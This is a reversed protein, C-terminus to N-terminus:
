CTVYWALVGGGPIEGGPLQRRVQDILASFGIARPAKPVAKLIAQRVATYKGADIRAGKKGPLPNLLHVRGLDGPSRRAPRKPSAPRGTGVGGGHRQM